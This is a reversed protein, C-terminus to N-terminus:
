SELHTVRCVFCRNAVDVPILWDEDRYNWSPDLLDEPVDYIVCEQGAEIKSKWSNPNSCVYAGHRGDTSFSYNTAPRFGNREIARANDRSTWHYLRM